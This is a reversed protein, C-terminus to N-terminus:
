FALETGIGSIFDESELDAATECGQFKNGGSKEPIQSNELYHDFASIYHAILSVKLYIDHGVIIPHNQM